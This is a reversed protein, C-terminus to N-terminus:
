QLIWYRSGLSAFKYGKSKGEALDVPLEKRTITKLFFLM